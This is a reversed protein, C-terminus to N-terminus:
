GWVESADIGLRDLTKQLEARVHQRDSVAVGCHSFLEFINESCARAMVVDGSELADGLGAYLARVGPSRMLDPDVFRSVPNNTGPGTAM